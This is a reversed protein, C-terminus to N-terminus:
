PHFPRAATPAAGHTLDDLCVVGFTQRPYDNPPQSDYAALYVWRDAYLLTTTPATSLTLQATAPDYSSVTHTSGIAWTEGIRYVIQVRVGDGISSWLPEALGDGDQISADGHGYQDTSITLVAGVQDLIRAHPAFYRYGAAQGAFTFVEVRRAHTTTDIEVATAIGVHNTLGYGGANDHPWPNSLLIRTGPACDQGKPRAVNLVLAYHDASFFEAADYAWLQRVADVWQTTGVGEVAGWDWPVLGHDTVVEVLEGTRSRAEPDRARELHELQTKAEIPDWRYHLRMGDLQGVPAPLQDPPEADYLDRENLTLDAQDPSFAGLRVVGLVGGHLRWMLRRVRLISGIMDQALFPGLYAYRVRNLPGNWGGPVENFAAQFSALSAVIQHPVGLGLDAIELDSGFFLQGVDAGAPANDGDTIAGAVNYGGGSGTSLLVQSLVNHAFEPTDAMFYAYAHLPACEIKGEGSGVGTWYDLDLRRHNIGFIRPDLWQMVRLAPVAGAGPSVSGYTPSEDWECIAVQVITEPEGDLTRLVPGRFVFYRARTSQSGDVDGGSHYVTLQGEIYPSAGGGLRVIQGTGGMAISYPEGSFKPEYYRPESGNDWDNSDESSQTAGIAATNMEAMWYDPGPTSFGTGFTGVLEEGSALKRFKIQRRDSTGVHQGDFHQSEPEFGLQGWARRHMVVYMVLLEQDTAQENKRLWFGDDSIIGADPEQADVGVTWTDLDGDDGVYNTSTGDIANSIIADIEAVLALKTTGTLDNAADLISGNFTRAPTGDATHHEWWVAFGAQETTLNLEATIPHWTASTVAGLTRRLLADRGHCSLEWVGGRQRSLGRVVGVWALGGAAHQLDWTPWASADDTPDDPDRYVEYLTVLRGAWSLPEDSVLVPPLEGPLPASQHVAHDFGVLEFPLAPFLRREGAPGIRELGVNRDWLDIVTGGPGLGTAALPTVGPALRERLIDFEKGERGFLQALLGDVDHLKFTIPNPELEGSKVDLSERIQAPMELGGLVRRAGVTEVGGIATESLGIWSSAGSGRLTGGSQGIDTTFQYPIGDIFLVWRVSPSDERLRIASLDPM